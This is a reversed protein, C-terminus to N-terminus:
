VVQLDLAVKISGSYPSSLIDVNCHYSCIKNNKWDIKVSKSSLVKDPKFGGVEEQESDFM